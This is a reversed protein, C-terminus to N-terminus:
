DGDRKLENGRGSLGGGSNQENVKLHLTEQNKCLYCALHFHLDDLAVSGCLAESTRHKSTLRHGRQAFIKGKWKQTLLPQLFLTIGGKDLQNISDNRFQSILTDGKFWSQIFHHSQTIPEGEHQASHRLWKQPWWWMMGCASKGLFGALTQQLKKIHKSKILFM